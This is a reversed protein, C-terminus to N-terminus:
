LEEYAGKSWILLYILHRQKIVMHSVNRSIATIWSPIIEGSGQPAGLLMEPKNHAMHFKYPQSDIEPTVWIWEVVTM